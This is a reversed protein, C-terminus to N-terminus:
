LGHPLFSILVSNLWEYKKFNAEVSPFCSLNSISSSALLLFIRFLKSQYPLPTTEKVSQFVVKFGSETGRPDWTKGCSQKLWQFDKWSSKAHLGQSLDSDCSLGEIDSSSHNGIHCQLTGVIVASTERVNHLIHGWVWKLENLFCDRLLVHGVHLGWCQM